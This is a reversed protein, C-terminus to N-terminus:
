ILPNSDLKEMDCIIYTNKFRKISKNTELKKIEFCVTERSLGALQAIEKHTINFDIIIDGSGEDIKGFRRSLMLLVNAVRCHADGTMLYELRLTMSDIGILLRNNILYLIESDKRIFELFSEKPARFVQTDNMAEYYYSNAINSIAWTLPFFAGQKFINLTFEDGDKANFFIRVFGQSLYSVGQPTDEPRMLLSGKKYKILPFGSFFTLLREEIAIFM